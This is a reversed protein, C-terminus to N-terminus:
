IGYKSLFDSLITKGNYKKYFGYPCELCKSPIERKTRHNKSNSIAKVISGDVIEFHYDTKDCYGKDGLRKEAFAFFKVPLIERLKDYFDKRIFVTSM